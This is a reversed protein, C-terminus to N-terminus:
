AAKGFLRVTNKQAANFGRPNMWPTPAGAMQRGVAVASSFGFIKRFEDSLKLQDAPSLGFWPARQENARAKVRGMQTSIDVRAIRDDAYTCRLADLMHGKIGPGFLNRFPAGGGRSKRGRYAPKLEPMRADDSGKGRMVRDKMLNAAYNGLALMQYRKPDLGGLTVRRFKGDDGRVQIKQKIM